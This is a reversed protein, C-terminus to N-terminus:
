SGAYFLYIATYHSRYEKGKQSASCAAAPAKGGKTAIRQISTVSEMMGKGHHDAAKLLLWPVSNPDPTANAVPKGTVRSGDSYEWTPGAFHSGVAKGSSDLLKADPRSFVWNSGDCTYVQDGAAPAQLILKENAPPKLNNPIAPLSQAQACLDLLFLVALCIRM